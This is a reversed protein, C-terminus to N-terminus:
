VHAVGADGRECIPRFELIVLHILKGGDALEILFKGV